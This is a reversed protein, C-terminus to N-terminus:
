RREKGTGVGKKECYKVSGKKKGNKVWEKWQKWGGGEKKRQRDSRSNREMYGVKKRESKRKDSMGEKKKEVATKERGIKIVWM